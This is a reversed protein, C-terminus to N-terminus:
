RNAGRVPPIALDLLQEPPAGRLAAIINAIPPITPQQAAAVPPELTALLTRCAHAGAARAEVSADTVIAARITEIIDNM